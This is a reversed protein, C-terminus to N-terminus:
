SGNLDGAMKNLLAADDATIHTTRPDERGFPSYDWDKWEGRVLHIEMRQLQYGERGEISRIAEMRDSTECWLAGTPTLTRYWIKFLETM